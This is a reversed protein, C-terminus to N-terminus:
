DRRRIVKAVRKEKYKKVDVKLRDKMKDIAAHMDADFEEIRLTQGPLGLTAEAYFVDGHRHHKTTRAVEIFVTLEGDKELRSILKALPGVKAEINAKLAPTLEFKTATIDIKM